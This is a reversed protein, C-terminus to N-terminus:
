PLFQRHTLIPLHPIIVIAVSMHFSTPLIVDFVADVFIIDPDGIFKVAFSTSHIPWM